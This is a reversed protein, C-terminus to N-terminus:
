MCYRLVDDVFMIFKKGDKSPLQVFRSISDPVMILAYDEDKQNTSDNLVAALYISNDRLNGPQSLNNLMIPFLLPRVETNFFQYVFEGQEKDLSQENLLYIHHKQLSKITERFTATFKIEQEEVISLIQQLIESPKEKNKRSNENEFQKMRKITAVRVRFFEDRNNSFIGLFRLREIIPNSEDMAEQLVRENFHLWSVERNILKKIM